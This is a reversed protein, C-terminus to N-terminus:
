GGDLRFVDIMYLMEVPMREAPQVTPPFAVVLFHTEGSDNAPSLFLETKPKPSKAQQV